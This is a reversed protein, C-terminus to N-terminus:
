SNDHKSITKVLILAADEPGWLALSEFLTEFGHALYFQRTKEYDPDPTSPGRTKVHFLKVNRDRCYNESWELLKKGIGTRHLEPSVALIHLEVSNSTHEELAVFGVVSDNLRAVSTPFKGLVEIYARNTEDIGFWQPLSGLISECSRRDEDKFKDIIINL